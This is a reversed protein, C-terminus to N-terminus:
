DDKVPQGLKSYYKQFDAIHKIRKMEYLLADETQRPLCGYNADLEADMKSLDGGYKETLLKNIADFTLTMHFGVLGTKFCVENRAQEVIM